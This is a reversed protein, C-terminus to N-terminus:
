AISRGSSFASIKLKTTAYKYSSLNEGILVIDVTKLLYIDYMQPIKSVCEFNRVDVLSFASFIVIIHVRFAVIRCVATSTCAILPLLTEYM